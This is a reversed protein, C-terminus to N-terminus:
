LAHWVPQRKYEARGDVVRLDFVPLPGGVCSAVVLGCGSVPIYREERERERM